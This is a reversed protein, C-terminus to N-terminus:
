KQIVELAAGRRNRAWIMARFRQISREFHQDPDELIQEILSPAPRRNLGIQTRSSKCSEACDELLWLAVKGIKSWIWSGFESM